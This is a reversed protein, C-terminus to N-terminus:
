TLGFDLRTIDNLLEATGPKSRRNRRCTSAVVRVLDAIAAELASAMDLTALFRGVFSRVAEAVKAWSRTPDGWAAAVVLWHQVVVAVLRAWVRVLQRVETAGELAAVRGQSKWRKFLLEIQWRARYLVIAEEPRLQTVPVSTVLITWDCWALREATPERGWKRQHEARLKQRRRSALEPPLRWAILRCPLRQGLGLRIPRDVLREAHGALWDLVAVAAGDPLCVGTGFQLRSLFHEEAAVLSAFVAVSFYGLDSIRLTGPGRRVHQRSTASDASRGPEVEVHALAGTRLDL